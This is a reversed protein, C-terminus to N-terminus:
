EPRPCHDPLQEDTKKWNKVLINFDNTYVRFKLVGQPKHDFDACPNLAPDNILMKWNAVLINFDNTYIRYKLIGQTLNDADGDCQYPWRPNGYMGCWCNPKRLAIWYGYTSYTQPYCEGSKFVDDQFEYAGMDVIPPIGVGSDATDPDDVFRPNGDLDTWIGSPLANSDGADICPSDSSLRGNCDVFCPDDCRNGEGPWCGKINSYTITVISGPEQYIESPPDDWLICNVLEAISNDWNSMGAGDHGASNCAFTSNDLKLTSANNCMGGGSARALNGSFKCNIMVPSSKFNYVGGGDRAKNGSFTCDTLKPSSLNYMGGGQMGASNTTFICNTLTSIGFCNHMGAGTEKAWNVIFTCNRLTLVGGYQDGNFVGGGSYASNRSFTCNAVTPSGVDNYLGGGNMQVGGGNANGGSICFGDLLTPPACNGYVIRYTNDARCPDNLLDCPDAVEVDNESLDGSLITEDYLNPDRDFWNPDNQCGPSPFGGYIVVNDMLRFAANRDGTGTPHAMDEDPRYTGAAVWIEHGPQAVKLADQLYKYASCWTIGDHIPGPANYDVYIIQGASTCTMSLLFVLMVVCM